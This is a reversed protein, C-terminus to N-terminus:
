RSTELAAEFWYSEDSIYTGSWEVRLRSPDETERVEADCFWTSLNQHIGDPRFEDVQCGSVRATTGPELSNTEFALSARLSENGPTDSAQISFSVFCSFDERDGQAVARDLEIGGVSGSLFASSVPEPCVEVEPGWSWDDEGGWCPDTQTHCRDCACAHLLVATTLLAMSTLFDMARRM